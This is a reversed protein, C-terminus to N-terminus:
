EYELYKQLLEIENKLPFTRLFPYITGIGGM